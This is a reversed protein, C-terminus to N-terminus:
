QSTLIDTCQKLENINDIHVTNDSSIWFELLTLNVQFDIDLKLAQKVVSYLNKRSHLVSDLHSLNLYELRM